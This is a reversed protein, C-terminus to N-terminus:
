GAAPEGYTPPRARGPVGSHRRCRGPRLRTCAHELAQGPDGPCLSPDRSPRATVRQGRAAWGPGPATCPGMEYYGWRNQKEPTEAERYVGGFGGLRAVNTCPVHPRVGARGSGVLGVTPGCSARVSSDVDWTSFARHLVHLQLSWLSPWECPRPSLSERRARQPRGGRDNPGPIGAGM